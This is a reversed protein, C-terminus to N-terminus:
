PCALGQEIMMPMVNEDADGDNLPTCGCKCMKSACHSSQWLLASSPQKLRGHLARGQVRTGKSQM